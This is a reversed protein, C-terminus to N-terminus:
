EISAAEIWSQLGVETALLDEFHLSIGYIRIKYGIKYVKNLLALDM